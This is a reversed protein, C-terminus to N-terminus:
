VNEPMNKELVAAITHIAIAREILGLFALVGFSKDGVSINRGKGDIGILKLLFCLVDNMTSNTLNTQDQSTGVGSSPNIIQAKSVGIACFGHDVILDDIRGPSRQLMRIAVVILPGDFVHKVSQVFLLLVDDIRHDRVGKFIGLSAGSLMALFGCGNLFHEISKRFVLLSGYVLGNGVSNVGLIGEFM